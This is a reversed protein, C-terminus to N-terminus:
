TFAATTANSRRLSARGTARSIRRRSSAAEPEARRSLPQRRRAGIFGDVGQTKILRLTEALEGQRLKQGASFNQGNDLFIAASAPFKRFDDTATALMEVDGQDLVFGDDALAIAPEILNERPMTGYKDRAYELGSVTGPVGVALWGITTLGKTVNGDKDLFMTRTAARPAKERFDLFTKRGDAFRITMFGGGGLNGAAPYVVALAYGVAVAADIANGGRKLVDVGVETALHQATVVMGKEAAVPRISAADATSVGVCAVLAFDRLLTAVRSISKLEM